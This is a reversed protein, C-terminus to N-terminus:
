STKNANDEEVLNIQLKCGLAKAIRAVMGVTAFREGCWWEWHMEHVLNPEVGLKIALDHSSLNQKVMQNQIAEALQRTLAQGAKYSEFIDHSTM